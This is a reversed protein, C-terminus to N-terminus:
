KDDGSKIRRNGRTISMSTAGIGLLLVIGALLSVLGVGFGAEPLEEVFVVDFVDEAGTPVEPVVVQLEVPDPTTTTTTVPVTTTTEPVTTATTGITTTTQSITTTTQSITTTTQSITTTTQPAVYPITLVETATSVGGGVGFARNTVLEDTVNGVTTVYPATCSVTAGVNLTTNPLGCSFLEGEDIQDDSISFQTPGLITNGTNTLLYSYTITTGAASFSAADATKELSLAPAPTPSNFFTCTVDEGEALDIVVSAGNISISGTSQQATLCSVRDFDWGTAANETITYSGFATIGSFVKTNALTGDDTLSFNSLPSPSASFSFSTAGETSTEKVITISSPLTVAASSLSRDMHGSSCNSVDSCDFGVVRMHYPSGSIVAASKDAGWDARSAIHGGWALVATNSTATIFVSVSTESTSGYTGNLSYSSPNSTITCTASGCITGGTNAVVAGNGPFTGGFISINQGAQQGVMSGSVSPDMPISLTSQSGCAIGACPDATTESFDFSTLYDIAHRGSVTSDWEIGVKYTSGVTLKELVARYAVADGESYESNSSGLNGTVWKSANSSDCTPGKNSCQELSMSPKGAAQLPSTQKAILAIIAVVIALVTLQVVMRLKRSHHESNSKESSQAMSM